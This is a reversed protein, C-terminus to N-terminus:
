LLSFNMLIIHKLWCMSLRYAYAAAHSKNFGYGAFASIQDFIEEAKHRLKLRVQEM